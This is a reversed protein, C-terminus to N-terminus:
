EGDDEVELRGHAYHDHRVSLDTVGMDTALKGILTLPYVDENAEELPAEGDITILYTTHPRLHIPTEPRLTEGDFIARVTEAM